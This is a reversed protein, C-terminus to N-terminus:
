EYVKGAGGVRLVFYIVILSQEFLGAWYVVTISLKQLEGRGEKM